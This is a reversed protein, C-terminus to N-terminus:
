IIEKRMRAKYVIFGVLRCLANGFFFIFLGLTSFLGDGHGLERIPFFKLYVTFVNIILLVFTGTFSLFSMLFYRNVNKRVHEKGFVLFCVPIAFGAIVFLPLSYLESKADFFPSFAFDVIIKMALARCIGDILALKKAKNM